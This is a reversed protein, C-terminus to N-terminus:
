SAINRLQVRSETTLLWLRVAQAISRGVLFVKDKFYKCLVGQILLFCEADDFYKTRQIFTNEASIKMLLSYRKVQSCVCFDWPGLKIERLWFM